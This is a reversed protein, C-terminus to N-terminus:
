PLNKNTEGIKPRLAPPLSRGMTDLHAALIGSYFAFGLVNGEDAAKGQMSRANAMECGMEIKLPDDDIRAFVMEAPTTM